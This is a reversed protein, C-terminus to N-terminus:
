GEPLLLEAAKAATDLAAVPSLRAQPRCLCDLHLSDNVGALLVSLTILRREGQMRSPRVARCQATSPPLSAETFASSFCEVAAPASLLWSSCPNVGRSQAASAPAGSIAAASSLTEIIQIEVFM